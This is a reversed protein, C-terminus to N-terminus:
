FNKGINENVFLVCLNYIYNLFADIGKFCERVKKQASCTPAWKRKLFFILSLFYFFLVEWFCVNMKTDM